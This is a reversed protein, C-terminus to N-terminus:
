VVHSLQKIRITFFNCNNCYVGYKIQSVKTDCFTRIDDNVIKEVLDAFWGTNNPGINIIIMFWVM